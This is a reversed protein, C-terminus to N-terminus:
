AHPRADRSGQGGQAGASGAPQAAGYGCPGHVEGGEGGTLLPLLCSPDCAAVCPPMPFSPPLLPGLRVEAELKQFFREEAADTQRAARVISLSTTRPSFAAPGSTEAQRASEKILDKLGKYDLYFSRWEEKAQKDLYKGFKM